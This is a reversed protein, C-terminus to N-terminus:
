ALWRDFFDLVVPAVQKFHTICLDHDADLVMLEKNDSAVAEYLMKAADFQVLVDRAGHISLFPVKVKSAYDMASPARTMGKYAEIPASLTRWSVASTGRKAVRYFFRVVDPYKSIRKLIHRGHSRIDVGASLVAVAGISKFKAAAVTSVLGGMSQGILGVSKIGHEKRLWKIIAGVDDVMAHIDLKARSESHGRADYRICLYGKEALEKAYRRFQLRNMCFGHLLLVASRAKKKPLM